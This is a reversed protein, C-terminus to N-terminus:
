RGALFRCGQFLGDGQAPLIHAEFWWDIYQCRGGGYNNLIMPRGLVAILGIIIGWSVLWKRPRLLWLLHGAASHFPSPHRVARNVGGIALGMAVSACIASSALSMPEGKAIEALWWAIIWFLVAQFMLMDSSPEQRTM